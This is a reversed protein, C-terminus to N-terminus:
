ALETNDQLPIQLFSAAKNLTATLKEKKRSSLLYIKTGDNLKLYGNFEVNVFTSAHNARASYMTTSKKATNIFIKEAGSFKKWKGSKMLFYFSTYERYTNRAKDIETGTAASLIFGPLLVLVLGIIPKEFLM